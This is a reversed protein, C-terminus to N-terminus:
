PVPPTRALLATNSRLQSSPFNSEFWLWVYSNPGPAM